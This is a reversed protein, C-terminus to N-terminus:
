GFRVTRRSKLKDKNVASSFAFKWNFGACNRSHFYVSGRYVFLFFLLVFDSFYIASDFPMTATAIQFSFSGHLTFEVVFERVAM